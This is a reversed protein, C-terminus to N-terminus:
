PKTLDLTVEGLASATVTVEGRALRAPQGARAPLWAVVGYTGVPVDRLITHGTPDTISTYPTAEAIIWSVEPDGEIALQYVGGTELAASAAHGAVPLQVLRAAGPAIKDLERVDGSKVLSLKAPADAASAITLTQGAVIVRPVLACHDLVVRAEPDVLPKGHDSALVIFVEPIGWLVTPAVAAARPTGCATRGSSARSAVPVDRWLATVQVDGTPGDVARYPGSPVAVSADRAIAADHKRTDDAIKPKGGSCAALSLVIVLKM